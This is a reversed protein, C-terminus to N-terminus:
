TYSVMINVVYRFISKIIRISLIIGCTILIKDIVEVGQNDLLVELKELVIDWTAVIIWAIM